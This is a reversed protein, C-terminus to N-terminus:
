VTPPMYVLHFNQHINSFFVSEIDFLLRYLLIAAAKKKKKRKKKAITSIIENKRCLGRREGKSHQRILCTREKKKEKLNSQENM